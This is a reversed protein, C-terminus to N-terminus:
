QKLTSYTIKQHYFDDCSMMMKPLLTELYLSMQHSWKEDIDVSQGPPAFSDSGACFMREYVGRFTPQDVLHHSAYRITKTFQVVMLCDLGLCDIKVLRLLM